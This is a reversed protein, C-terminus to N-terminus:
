WKISRMTIEKAGSNEQIFKKIREGIEFRFNEDQIIKDLSLKFTDYNDFSFAANIKILENAESFKKHNPGFLVPIGYAAAELISHIGSKFGGGIVAVFAYRYISALMGITDLIMVESELNKQDSYRTHTIKSESLLKEIREVSNKNVEHPVFILKIKDSDKKILKFYQILFNEEELYSSGAIIIKKNGIFSEIIENKFEVQTIKIVRDLRTDGSVICNKAGIKYLLNLSHKDQVFIKEYKLLSNRFNKGYWKFFTQNEHIVASILYVPIKRNFLSNLINLWFEYKIFIAMSPNLISIFTEANVKTDFPLYCVFDVYEYNKRLEYGSPSFFTLIIKYDPYKIRVDEIIPRGQEFEGVSAAHFWVIKKGKTKQSIKKISDFINKRGSIMQAAKNNWLAVIRVM